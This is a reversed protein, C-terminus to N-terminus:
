NEPVIRACTEMVAFAPTVEFPPNNARFPCIEKFLTWPKASYQAGTTVEVEDVASTVLELLIVESKVVLEGVVLKIEDVAEEVEDEALSLETLVLLTPDVVDVTDGEKLLELVTRDLELDTVGEIVLIDFEMDRLVRKVLQIELSSLRM